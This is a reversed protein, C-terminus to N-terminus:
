RLTLQRSAVGARARREDATLPRPDALVADLRGRFEAAPGEVEDAEVNGPLDWVPIVLGHARFAGVWRTESGLGLGGAVHLRGLADLLPDEDEPLAWRLHCREGIRCWYAAAVGQLRATPVVSANATELSAAVEAALDGGTDGLWWEFGPHVTVEVPDAAVLEDFRPTESEPEPLGTVGTGPEAALAALLAQGLDRGLDGSRVATQLALVVSGDTRVLAPWAAPLVTGLTVARDAYAPDRLRLAATASPVVERLAVLDTEDARGAFPRRVFTAARAERALRKRSPGEAPRGRGPGSPRRTV